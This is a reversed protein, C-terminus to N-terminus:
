SLTPPIIRRVGKKAVGLFQSIEVGKWAGPRGILRTRDHATMERPRRNGAAELPRGPARVPRAAGHLPL